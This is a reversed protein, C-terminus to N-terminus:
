EGESGKEKLTQLIRTLYEERYTSIERTSKVVRSLKLQVGNKRIFWTGLAGASALTGICKAIVACGREGKASM